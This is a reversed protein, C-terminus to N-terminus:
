IVIIDDADDLADSHVLELVYVSARHGHSYMIMPDDVMVLTDDADDLADSHAIYRYKLAPLSHDGVFV